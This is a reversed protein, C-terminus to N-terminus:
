FEGGRRKLKQLARQDQLCPRMLARLECSSHFGEEMFEATRNGARQLYTIRRWFSVDDVVSGKNPVAIRLRLVDTFVDSPHILDIALQGIFPFLFIM